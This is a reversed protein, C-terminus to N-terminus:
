IERLAKEMLADTQRTREQRTGCARLGDSTKTKQAENAAIIAAKQDPTKESCAALGLSFLVAFFLPYVTKKM